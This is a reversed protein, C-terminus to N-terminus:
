SPSFREINALLIALVPNDDGAVGPYPIGNQAALRAQRDNIAAARLLAFILYWDLDLTKRGIGSEYRTVIEERTLFGPVRRGLFHFAVEELSLYWALDCEAPGIFALEWDLITAIEAGRFLVNELRPDGWCLAAAPERGPVTEECWAAAQELRGPPTGDSAWYIYERWWTVEARLSREGGRVVGILPRWDASNIAVVMDVFGQHIRRQFREGASILDADFAPLEPGPRGNELSMVLVPAGFWQEDDVFAEVRPVPIGQSAATALVQAQSALDYHPWTPLPPPLRVVFRRIEEQHRSDGRVTVLLTENTWGENPRRLELM